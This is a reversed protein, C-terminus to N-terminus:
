RTRDDFLGLLRLRDGVSSWRRAAYVLGAALGFAVIHEYFGLGNSVLTVGLLAGPPGVALLWWAWRPLPRTKWWAVGALVGLAACWVLSVGFDAERLLTAMGSQSVADAISVGAYVLLTGLIHALVAASWFVRGGALRIATVGLVATALVQPVFPGEVLLGSTVLPWVRASAVDDPSSAMAHVVPHGVIRGMITVACVVILYAILTWEGPSPRLRPRSGPERAASGSRPRSGARARPAPRSGNGASPGSAAPPSSPPASIARRM